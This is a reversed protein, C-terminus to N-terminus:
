FKFYSLKVQLIREKKKNFIENKTEHNKRIETRHNKKNRDKYSNNKNSGM